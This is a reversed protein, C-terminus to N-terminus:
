VARGVEAIRTLEEWKIGGGDNVVETLKRGENVARKILNQYDKYVPSAFWADLAQLYIIVSEKRLASFKDRLVQVSDIGGTALRRFDTLTMTAIEDIPGLSVKKTPEVKPPTVDQVLPKTNIGLVEGTRRRPPLKHDESKTPFRLNGRESSLIQSSGERLPALPTNALHWVKKIAGIVASTQEESFGLGGDAESRQLYGRMQDETRVGKVFSVALSNLRGRMEDKIPFRIEKVFLDYLDDRKSPLVNASKTKVAEGVADELLSKNDDATWDKKGYDKLREIKYNKATRMKAYKANRMYKAEDVFIEKVPATTAPLVESELAPLEGVPTRPESKPTIIKSKPTQSESTKKENRMKADKANRMYIQFEDWSMRVSTGDSKKVLITPQNAM